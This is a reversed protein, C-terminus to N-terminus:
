LHFYRFIPLQHLMRVLNLAIKHYCRVRQPSSCGVQYGSYPAYALGCAHTAAARLAPWDITTM